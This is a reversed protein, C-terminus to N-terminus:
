VRGLFSFATKKHVKDSLLEAELKKRVENVVSVAIIASTGGLAMNSFGLLNTVATTAVILAILCANGAIATEKTIKEIYDATPKGPRIGAIVTGSKKLNNAMEIPNYQINLYFYAFFTTLLAYLIVGLTYMPETSNFWNGQNLSSIIKGAIGTQMAPIFRALILPLSFISSTFIVPMVSCTLFPIPMINTSSGTNYSSLKRSSTLTIRREASVLYNCAYLIAAFIAIAIVATVTATAPNKGSIYMDFIGKVDNPVTSVINLFLIMSIGSGLGFLEIFEGIAILIGAGITWTAAAAIVTWVSFPEILGNRGFGISMAVAQLLALGLGTYRIVKKYKEQGTTGDKAMEELSPFVITLLQIIISASIYPTISLAFIGMESLSTGTLISLVGINSGDLLGKMYDANVFPLRILSGIRIFIMFLIIIGIKQKTNLKRVFNKIKIDM